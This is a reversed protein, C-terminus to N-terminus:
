LTFWGGCMRWFGQLWLVGTQVDMMNFIAKAVRGSEGHVAKTPGHQYDASLITAQSGAKDILSRRYAKDDENIAKLQTTAFTQSFGADPLAGPEPFPQLRAPAPEGDPAPMNNSGAETNDAAAAAAAADVQQQLDPVSPDPQPQPGWSEPLTQQRSGGTGTGSSGGEGGNHGSSNCLQRAAWTYYGLKQLLYRTMGVEKVADAFSLAHLLPTAASMLANPGVQSQNMFL